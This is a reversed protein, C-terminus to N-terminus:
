KFNYCGEFMNRFSHQRPSRQQLSYIQLFKYFILKKIIAIIFAIINTHYIVQSYKQLLTTKVEVDTLSEEGLLQMLREGFGRNDFRFEWMKNSYEGDGSTVLKIWRKSEKNFEYLDNNRQFGYGGFII